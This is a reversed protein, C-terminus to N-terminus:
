GNPRRRLPNKYEGLSPTIIKGQDDPLHEMLAFGLGQMM